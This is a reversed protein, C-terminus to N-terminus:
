LVSDGIRNCQENEYDELGLPNKKLLLINKGGDSPHIRRLGGLVAV